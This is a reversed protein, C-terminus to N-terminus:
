YGQNFLEVTTKHVRDLAQLSDKSSSQMIM